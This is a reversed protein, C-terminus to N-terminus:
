ETMEHLRARTIGYEGIRRGILTAETPAEPDGTYGDVWVEGNVEVSFVGPEKPRFEELVLQSGFLRAPDISEPVVSLRYAELGNPGELPVAKIVRSETYSM